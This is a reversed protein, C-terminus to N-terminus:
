SKISSGDRWGLTNVRSSFFFIGIYVFSYNSGLCLYKGEQKKLWFFDPRRTKSLKFSICFVGDQDRLVFM